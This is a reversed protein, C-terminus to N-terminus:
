SVMRARIHLMVIGNKGTYTWEQGYCQMIANSCENVKVIPAWTWKVKTLTGWFKSFMVVYIYRQTVVGASGAPVYLTM